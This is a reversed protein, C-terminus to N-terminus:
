AIEKKQSPAMHTFICLLQCPILFISLLTIQHLMMM